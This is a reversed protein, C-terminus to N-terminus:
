PKVILFGHEPHWGPVRARCDLHLWTKTFEVDEITTLGVAEFEAEHAMILHLVMRPDMGQVKFDAARGCRHQSLQGGVKEWIARFGSAKYVAEGKKAYSWNNIKVPVGVKERLLDAIRVLMPDILCASKVGLIGFTRPDVFERVDFYQSGHIPFEPM